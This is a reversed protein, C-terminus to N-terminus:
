FEFLNQSNHGPTVAAEANAWSGDMVTSMTAPRDSRAYCRTGDPLECIAIAHDPSGDSTHVVTAARIVCRADAHDVVTVDPSTSPALWQQTSRENGQWLISGPIPSYIAAVHKTMHMGVGTVMGAHSPNARLHDVLHSISHGMYNSSPGGHYPLGGALSIPRPDDHRLGLADRAFQVASGFCSYLDFVDIDSVSMSAMACATQTAITMARSSSLDNRAGLHIADRAFGWGRLYARRDEPVGWADATRRTVMLNAAAMNVNMFSTMLKTYPSAVMRNSTSPQTIDSASRLTRFWADPNAAAVTNLRAMVEGLENRGGATAGRAAWRAQELLAFTLWAPLVGHARETSLYWEDFDIPLAPPSPHPHSWNPTEGCRQMASQTALAEGGVVLAVSCEGRLMREAAEDLLRQPSTGALISESFYIGHTELRDALRRVPEDYAWSQCHVLGLHDISGIIDRQVDVDDAASRAVEEWMDLPEPTASIDNWTRRATGIICPALQPDTTGHMQNRTQRDGQM